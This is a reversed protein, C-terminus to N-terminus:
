HERLNLSKMLEEYYDDIWEQQPFGIEPKPVLPLWYCVFDFRGEARQVWREPSPDVAHMHFFGREMRDALSESLIWGTFRLIVSPPNNNHNLEEYRVESYGDQENLVHCWYGRPFVALNEADDFPGNKLSTDVIVAKGVDLKTIKTGLHNVLRTNLLGTEEGVERLAATEFTEGPDVTGAPFQVGADPHQFVLLEIGATSEDDRTVFATVKPITRDSNTFSM